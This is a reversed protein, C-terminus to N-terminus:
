QAQCLTCKFGSQNTKSQHSRHLQVIKCTNLDTILHFFQIVALLFMWQPLQLHHHINKSNNFWPRSRDDSHFHRPFYNFSFDRQKELGDVVIRSESTMLLKLANVFSVFSFEHSLWLFSVTELTAFVIKNSKTTKRQLNKTTKTAMFWFSVCVVFLISIKYLLFVLHRSYIYASM